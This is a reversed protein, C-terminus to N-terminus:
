HPKNLNVTRAARAPAIAGRLTLTTNGIKRLTGAGSIVGDYPLAASQSTTLATLPAIVTQGGGGGATYITSVNQDADVALTATPGNLLVVGGNPIGDGADVQLIGDNVITGGVYTNALSSLM